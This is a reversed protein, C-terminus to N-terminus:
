LCLVLRYLSVPSAHRWFGCLGVFVHRKAAGDKLYHDKTLFNVLFIINRDRSANSFIQIKYSANLLFIINVILMVYFGLLLLLINLQLLHKDFVLKELTNYVFKIVDKILSPKQLYRKKNNSLFVFFIM